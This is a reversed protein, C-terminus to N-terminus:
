PDFVERTTGYISALAQDLMFQEKSLPVSLGMSALSSESESGLLLRWRTIKEQQKQDM